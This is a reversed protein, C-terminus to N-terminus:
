VMIRGEFGPGRTDRYVDPDSEAGSHPYSEVLSPWPADSNSYLKGHPDENVSLM